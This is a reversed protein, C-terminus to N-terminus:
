VLKLRLVERRSECRMAPGQCIGRVGQSSTMAKKKEGAVGVRRLCRRGEVVGNEYVSRDILIYM